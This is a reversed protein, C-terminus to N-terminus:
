TSIRGAGQVLNGALFTGTIALCEMDLYEEATENFLILCKAPFEKDKDNFNLIVPVKPLAYFKVSLDYLASGKFPTGCTQKCANELSKIDGTFASEIIKNTNSTFYSMLPGSDKFERYTVWEGQDHIIDPCCLVYKCLVVSVAFNAKGGKPDRVGHGSIGYPKGYFPIIIEEGSIEAGLRVARLPLEIKKLQDLYDEYTKDFVRKESAM